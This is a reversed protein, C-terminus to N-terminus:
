YYHLCNFRKVNKRFWNSIEQCELAFPLDTSQRANQAGEHEVNKHDKSETDQNCAHSSGVAIVILGDGPYILRDLCCWIGHVVIFYDDGVGGANRLFVHKTCEELCGRTTDQQGSYGSCIAGLDICTVAVNEAQDILWCIGLDLGLANVYVSELLNTAVCEALDSEHWVQKGQSYAGAFWHYSSPVLVGM